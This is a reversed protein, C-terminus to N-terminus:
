LIHRLLLFTHFSLVCSKSALCCYFFKKFTKTTELRKLILYGVLKELPRLVALIDVRLMVVSQIIANLMSIFLIRCEAYQYVAYRCLTAINLTM